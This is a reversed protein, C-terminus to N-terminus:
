DDEQPKQNSRRQLSLRAETNPQGDAQTAQGGQLRALTKDLNVKAEEYYTPRLDLAKQFCRAAEEYRGDLYYYVGINNFALAEDGGKRFAELAEPFKKQAALVMGLRQNIRQNQPSLTQAQKLWRLAEDYQKLKYHVWGINGMIRANRTVQALAAKFETLAQSYQGGRLYAEGLLARAQARNPAQALVTRFEQQAEAPKNEQLYIVGLAEHAEPMDMKHVLVEALERKADGLRGTMLLALGLKYRIDHRQPDQHLIKSYTYISREYDGSQLMLEATEALNEPTEERSPRPLPQRWDPNHLTELREAESTSLGRLNPAKKNGQTTLCASLLLPLLLGLCLPRWWALYCPLPLFAFTNGPETRPACQLHQSGPPRM